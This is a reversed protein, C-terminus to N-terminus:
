PGTGSASTRPFTTALIHGFGLHNSFVICSTTSSSSHLSLYVQIYTHAYTHPCNCNCSFGTMAIYMSRIEGRRSYVLTVYVGGGYVGEGYFFGGM